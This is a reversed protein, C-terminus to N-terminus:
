PLAPAHSVVDALVRAASALWEPTCAAVSPPALLVAPLADPPLLGALAVVVRRWPGEWGALVADLEAAPRGDAAAAQPPLPRTLDSRTPTLRARRQAQRGLRAHPAEETAPPQPRAM